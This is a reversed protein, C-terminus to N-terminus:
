PRSRRGSNMASRKIASCITTTTGATSRRLCISSTTLSHSAAEEGRSRSQIFDLGWGHEKNAKKILHLGQAFAMLFSAYIAMHLDEVFSKMVKEPPTELKIRSCVVPCRECIWTGAGEEDDIDQVVKDRITALVYGGTKPDKTRCIDAGISVLFNDYQIRTQLARCVAASVNVLPGSKNWEEFSKGIEEYEMGLCHSM